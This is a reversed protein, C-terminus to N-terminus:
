YFLEEFKNRCSCVYEEIDDTMNNEVWLLVEDLLEFEEKTEIDEIHLRRAMRVIDDYCEVGRAYHKVNAVWVKLAHTLTDNVTDTKSVSAIHPEAVCKLDVMAFPNENNVALSVIYQEPILSPAFDYFIINLDDKLLTPLELMFKGNDYGSVDVEIDIDSLDDELGKSISGYIECSKVMPLKSVIEIVNEAQNRLETNM